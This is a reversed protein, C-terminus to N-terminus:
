VSKDPGHIRPDERLVSCENLCAARFGEAIPKNLRSHVRENSFYRRAVLRLSETARERHLNLWSDWTLIRRRHEIRSAACEGFEYRGDGCEVRILAHDKRVVRVDDTQFRDIGVNARESEVEIELRVAVAVSVCRIIDVVILCEELRIRCREVHPEGGRKRRAVHGNGCETGVSCRDHLLNLDDGLALCLLLAQYDTRNLHCDVFYGSQLIRETGLERRREGRRGREEIVPFEAVSLFTQEGARHM